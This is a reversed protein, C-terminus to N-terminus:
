PKRGPGTSPENAASVIEGRPAVPSGCGGAAPHLRNRRWPLRWRGAIAHSPCRIARLRGRDTM